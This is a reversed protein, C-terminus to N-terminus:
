TITTYPRVGRLDVMPIENFMESADKVKKPSRWKKMSGGVIRQTGASRVAETGGAGV